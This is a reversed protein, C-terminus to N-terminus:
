ASAGGLAFILGAAGALMGGLMFTLSITSNVNIGM